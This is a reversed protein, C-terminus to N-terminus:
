EVKRKWIYENVVYCLHKIGIYSVTIHTMKLLDGTVLYTITGLIVLGCCTEYTLMKLLSRRLMSEVTMRLWVREHVYFVVLFIGHHLFTVLGTQIWSRTFLFTIIALIVVGTMRWVISKAASRRRTEM